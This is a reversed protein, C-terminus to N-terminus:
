FFNSNDRFNMNTNFLETYLKTLTNSKGSGTNGFIGIHTNFLRDWAIRIPINNSVSKGIPITNKSSSSNRQLIGGVEEQTLLIVENYIMPFHKIGFEFIGNYINGILRVELRREFRDKLYEHSSPDENKDDLYEKEVRAIIKNAGRIIGVYSGISVGDYITGDYHFAELNSQNNMLIDIKLGEVSIVNGIVYRTM